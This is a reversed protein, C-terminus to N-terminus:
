HAPFKLRRMTDARGSETKKRCSHRMTVAVHSVTPKGGRRAQKPITKQIECFCITCLQPWSEDPFTGPGTSANCEEASSSYLSAVPATGTQGLTSTCVERGPDRKIYHTYLHFTRDRTHTHSYVPNQIRSYM